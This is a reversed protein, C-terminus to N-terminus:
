EDKNTRSPQDDSSKIIIRRSLKTQLSDQQRQPQQLHNVFTEIFKIIDEATFIACRQGSKTHEIIGRWLESDSEIERPECWLQIIFAHRNDNLYSM